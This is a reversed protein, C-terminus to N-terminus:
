QGHVVAPTVTLPDSPKDFIAKMAHTIAAQEAPQASALGACLGCVLMAFVFGSKFLNLKM